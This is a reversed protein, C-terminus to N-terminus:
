VFESKQIYCNYYEGTEDLNFFFNEQPNNKDLTFTDVTKVENVNLAFEKWLQKYKGQVFSELEEKTKFLHFKEEENQVFYDSEPCSSIVLSFARYGNEVPNVTIFVQDLYNHAINDQYFEAYMKIQIM